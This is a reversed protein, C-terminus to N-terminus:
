SRTLKAQDAIDALEHLRKAIAEDTERRAAERLFGVFEAHMDDITAEWATTMNISKLEVFPGYQGEMTRFNERVLQGDQIGEVADFHAKSEQWIDGDNDVWTRRRPIGPHPSRKPLTIGLSRDDAMPRPIMPKDNEDTM